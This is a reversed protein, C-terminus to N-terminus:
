REAARALAPVFRAADITGLGSALDYGTTAPYGTVGGFTNDGTTVDVLGSCAARRPDAGLAYLAENLDGLRHGAVQDALAVVGAFVPTAESTGGFIHWGTKAPNYSYYVWAGGDHAASMAVDPIGRQAGVVARVTNQFGPRDFVVSLGGGGAGHGDNWVTDPALRQGADNLNLRTGGVATVLPDGAPWVTAPTPYLTTGDSSIGAAGTDGSAALVTVHHAAAAKFAYRLALLSSDDGQPVGPFTAESTGFSQSIVDPVGADILQKEAHMMEPFGTVGVTESVPTEVLVIKADPAIAHAYEVDVTSEAAWSLDDPNGVDFPPITGTRVIHVTADPLGWQADFVNLDHQITPSGFSDVIMITRGKGTVGRQYLANLDYAARLQLPSYCHVALQVLCQSTPLPTNLTVADVLGSVAPVPRVSGAPFTAPAHTAHM